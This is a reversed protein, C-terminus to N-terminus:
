ENDGGKYIANDTPLVPECHDFLYDGKMQFHYAWDAKVEKLIGYIAKDKDINWFRCLKGAWDRYQAFKDQMNETLTECKEPELKMQLEDIQKEHINVSKRVAELIGIWEKIEFWEAEREKQIANVIDVLENIKEALKHRAIQNQNTIKEIM